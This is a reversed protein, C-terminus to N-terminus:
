TIGSWCFSSARFHFQVPLSFSSVLSYILHPYPADEESERGRRERGDRGKDLDPQAIKHALTMKEPPKLPFSGANGAQQHLLPVQATNNPEM